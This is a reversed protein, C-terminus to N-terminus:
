PMVETKPKFGSGAEIITNVLCVARSQLDEITSNNNVVFDFVDDSIKTQETETRHDYKPADYGPRKIRIFIPIYNNAKALQRITRIEHKHRISPCVIIVSDNSHFWPGVILGHEDDYQQTSIHYPKEFNKDDYIVHSVYEKNFKILHQVWIEEYMDQLNTCHSQLVERPSLWFNPDGEEIFYIKDKGGITHINSYFKIKHWFKKPFKRECFHTFNSPIQGEYISGRITQLEFEYYLKKPYRLDGRDKFKASGFVQEYSFDFTEMVHRRPVDILGFKIAGFKDILPNAFEDKGTKSFGSLGIIYNTFPKMM